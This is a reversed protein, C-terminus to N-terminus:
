FCKIQIPGTYDIHISRWPAKPWEWPHLYAQSPAWQNRQCKQCGHAYKEIEADLGPLWVYSRAVSKMRNIGPQCQHLQELVAARGKQPIVVRTGWLLCGDFLSLEEKRTEYPNLNQRDRGLSYGEKIEQM